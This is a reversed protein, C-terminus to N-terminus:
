MINIPGLSGRCERNEMDYVFVRGGGLAIHKYTAIVRDGMTLKIDQFDSTLKYISLNGERFLPADDVTLLFGLPQMLEIKKV